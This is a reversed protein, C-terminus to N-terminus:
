KVGNLSLPWVLKTVHNLLLFLGSMPSELAAEQQLNHLYAVRHPNPGGSVRIWAGRAAKAAGHKRPRSNVGRHLGPLPDYHMGFRIAGGDTKTKEPRRRHQLLWVSRVSRPLLRALMGVM